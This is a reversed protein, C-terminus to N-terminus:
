RRICRGPAGDAYGGARDRCIVQRGPRARLWDAFDAAERGLLVDVPRHGDALDILVTGYQHGCRMAFEDVGLVTMQGVPPDPLARILRLLTSRSVGM